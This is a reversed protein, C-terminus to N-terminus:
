QSKNIRKGCEKRMLNKVESKLAEKKRVITDGSLSMESEKSGSNKPRKKRRSWSGSSSRSGSRARERSARRRVVNRKLGDREPTEYRDRLNETKKMRPNAMEVTVRNGGMRTGHLSRVADEADGPSSM